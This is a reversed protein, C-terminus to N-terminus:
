FNILCFEIEFAQDLFSSQGPNKFAVKTKGLWHSIDVVKEKCASFSNEPNSHMVDFDFPWLRIM